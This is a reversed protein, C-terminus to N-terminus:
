KKGKNKEPWKQQCPLSCFHYVYDAGEATLHVSPPVEGGCTKCTAPITSKKSKVM